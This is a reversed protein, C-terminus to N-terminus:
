MMRFSAERKYMPVSQGAGKVHYYSVNYSYSRNFGVHQENIKWPTMSNMRLNMKNINALTDTFPVADDWDGSYLFVKINTQLLYLISNISGTSDPKYLNYITTNCISIDKDLISKFENNKNFLLIFGFYLVLLCVDWFFM